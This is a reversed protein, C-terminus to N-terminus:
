GRSRMKKYHGVVERATATYYSVNANKMPQIQLIGDDKGEVFAFFYRGKKDIEVIDGERVGSLQM